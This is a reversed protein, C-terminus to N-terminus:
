HGKCGKPLLCRLASVEAHVTSHRWNITPSNKVKNAGRALVRGNRAAVAGHMWHGHESTKAVELAKDLLMAHRTM